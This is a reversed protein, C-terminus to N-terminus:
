DIIDKIKQPAVEIAREYFYKFLFCFILFVPAALSFFLMLFVINIYSHGGLLM